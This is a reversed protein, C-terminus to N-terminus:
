IDTVRDYLANTIFALKAVKLHSNILWFNIQCKHKSTRPEEPDLDRLIALWKFCDRILLVKVDDISDNLIFLDLQSVSFNGGRNEVQNIGELVIGFDHM